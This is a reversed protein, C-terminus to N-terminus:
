DLVRRKILELRQPSDKRPTLSRSRLRRLHPGRQALPQRLLISDPCAREDEFFVQQRPAKISVTNLYMLDKGKHSREMKPNYMNHEYLRHQHRPHFLRREKSMGALLMIKVLAYLNPILPLLLLRRRSTSIMLSRTESQMPIITEQTVNTLKLM